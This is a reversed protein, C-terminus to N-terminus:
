LHFGISIGVRFGGPNVKHQPVTVPMASEILQFNEDADFYSGALGFAGIRVGVPAYQYEASLGLSMTRSLFYSLEVLGILAFTNRAFREQDSPESLSSYKSIVYRCDLHGLGAGAGLTFSIKRLFVDPLPMWSIMFYYLRGSFNANLYLESSYSRGGREIPIFRFGTVESEGLSSTGLGVALKRTLSYDVQLGYTTDSKQTVSPFPTAEVTGFSLGFFSLTQAPRTDGFGIGKFLDTCGSAAQSQAHGPRYTLHLRRFKGPAPKQSSLSAPRTEELISLNAGSPNDAQEIKPVPTLKALDQAFGQSFRAKKDLKRLIADKEQPSRGELDVSEDIGTVAGSIGGIIGGVIALGAGFMLAKEGATFSFWGPEDNGSALGLGAGVGAGALSGFGIGSLIKSKKVVRISRIADLGLRVESFTSSDMLILEHDKVALLEARVVQGDNKKVLLEAGKRKESAFSPLTLCLALLVTTATKVANRMKGINMRTM